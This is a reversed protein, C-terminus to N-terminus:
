SYMTALVQEVVGNEQTTVLSTFEFNIEELLKARNEELNKNEGARDCFIVKGNKKM